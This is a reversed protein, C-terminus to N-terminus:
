NVLRVKNGVHTVEQTTIKWIRRSKLWKEIEHNDVTDYFGLAYRQCGRFQFGMQPEPKESNGTPEITVGKM